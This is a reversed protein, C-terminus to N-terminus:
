KEPRRDTIEISYESNSIRESIEEFKSASIKEFKIYDGAKYIIPPVKDPDYLRVPTKGILQWGGPSPVPYIGTQDGGIGVAGAPIRPRPSSLRPTCIRKDLGGLYAFGPLFGLMYILYEKSTHIEIVEDSSLGNAKCVNEIDPAYDGEYCVPIHFVRSSSERSSTKKRIVKECQVILKSKPIILPDYMVLLSRFTPILGSIGKIKKGSLSSFLDMVKTHIDPDISNGFEIDLASEGSDLFRIQSNNVPYTEDTKKM